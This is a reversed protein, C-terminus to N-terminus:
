WVASSFTEEWSPLMILHQAPLAGGQTPLGGLCIDATPRPFPEGSGAGHPQLSCGGRPPVSPGQSGQPPGPDRWGPAPSPAGEQMPSLRGPDGDMRSGGHQIVRPNGEEGRLSWPAASTAPRQDWGRRPGQVGAPGAANHQAQSRDGGRTPSGDQMSPGPNIKPASIPVLFPLLPTHSCPGARGPLTAGPLLTPHQLCLAPATQTPFPGQGQCLFTDGIHCCTLLCLVDQQGQCQLPSCTLGNSRPSYCPSSASVKRQSCGPTGSGHGSAATCSSAGTPCLGRCKNQM